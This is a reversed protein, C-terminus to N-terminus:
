QQHDDANQGDEEGLRHGAIGGLFHAGLQQPGLHVHAPDVEQRSLGGHVEALELDGVRELGAAVQDLGIADDELEIGFGQGLLLQHDLAERKLAHAEAGGPLPGRARDLAVAEGRLRKAGDPGPALLEVHGNQLEGRNVRDLLQHEVGALEARHLRGLSQERPGIRGALGELARASRSDFVSARCSPRSPVRCAM